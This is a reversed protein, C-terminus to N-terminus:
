GGGIGAWTRNSSYAGVCVCEKIWTVADKFSTIYCVDHESAQRGAQRGAQQTDVAAKMLWGALGGLQWHPSPLDHAFLFIILRKNEPARM